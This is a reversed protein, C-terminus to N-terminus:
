ALDEYMPLDSESETESPRKQCGEYAAALSFYLVGYAFCILAVIDQTYRFGLVVAVNAGFLPGLIQGIGLCSNFIGSCYNSVADEQGPFQLNAQRIM